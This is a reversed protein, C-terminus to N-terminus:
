WEMKALARDVRDLDRRFADDETRRRAARAIAQTVGGPSKRLQRALEKVRLGYREVGLAMLLERATVVEGTRRRSRLRVFEAAEAEHEFAREGRGLRNYVHYVGGEVLIRAPRTM